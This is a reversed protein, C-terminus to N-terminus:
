KNKSIQQKLEKIENEFDSKIKENEKKMEIIYLTLEEIKKLLLAQTEGVDVGNKEVDKATPVEPLHKNEKIFNEVQSLPRLHYGDKFVYDSWGNQTVIIKKSRINGNVSLREAPTTTGIGVNGTFSEIFLRSNWSTGDNNTYAGFEIPGRTSNSWDGVLRLGGNPAYSGISALTGESANTHFTISSGWNLRANGAIHLLSSPSLTGIGVNGADTIRMREASSNGTLRTYFALYGGYNGSTGDSKLGKISAWNAYQIGNYNGGFGLVGGINAAVADNGIISVMSSQGTPTAGEFDGLTGVIDGNALAATGSQLVDFKSLPNTTGIGVNGATNIVMQGSMTRFNIGFYGALQTTYWTPQGSTISINSQGLGYWPAGNFNDGNSSNVRFGGSSFVEGAVQLKYGPSATGIGVNGSAPFTNTQANLQNKILCTILLLIICQKLWAFRQMSLYYPNISKDM